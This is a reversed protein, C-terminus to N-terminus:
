PLEKLEVVPPEEISSKSPPNPRNQFDLDLKKLTFPKSGMGQLAHVIEDYGEIRDETYNM